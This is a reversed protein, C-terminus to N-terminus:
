ISEMAAEKTHIPYMDMDPYAYCEKALKEM